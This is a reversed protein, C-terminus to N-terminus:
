VMKKAQLEPVRQIAAADVYLPQSLWFFRLGKERNNAVVNRAKPFVIERSNKAEEPDEDLDIFIRYAIELM